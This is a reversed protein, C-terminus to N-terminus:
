VELRKRWLRSLGEAKWRRIETLLDQNATRREARLRTVVPARRAVRAKALFELAIDRDRVAGATQLLHRLQARMSKWAGGPYFPAFVRLGRSLRRIAVRLDHISGPDGTEAARNVQTALTRLLAATQQQAYKRM